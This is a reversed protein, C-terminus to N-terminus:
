GIFEKFALTYVDFRKRIVYFAVMNSTHGSDGISLISYSEGEWPKIHDEINSYTSFAENLSDLMRKLLDNGLEKKIKKQKRLAFRYRTKSM